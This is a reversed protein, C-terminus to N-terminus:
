RRVEELYRATDRLMKALFRVDSLPKTALFLSLQEIEERLPNTKAEEFRFLEALTMQFVQAIQQLTEVSPTVESRELRGIADLSVDAADALEEQSLGSQKRLARIRHSLLRRIESMKRDKRSDSLVVISQLDCSIICNLYPM